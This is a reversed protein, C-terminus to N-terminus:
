LYYGLCTRYELSTTYKKVLIGWDKEFFPTQSYDIETKLFDFKSKSRSFLCILLLKKEFTASNTKIRLLWFLRSMIEFSFSRENLM